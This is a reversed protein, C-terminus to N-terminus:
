YFIDNKWPPPTIIKAKKDCYQNGKACNGRLRRPLQRGAVHLDRADGHGVLLLVDVRTELWIPHGVDLRM